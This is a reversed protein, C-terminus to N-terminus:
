VLRVSIIENIKQDGYFIVAFVKEDTRRLVCTLNWPRIYYRASTADAEHRTIGENFEDDSGQAKLSKATLTVIEAAKDYRITMKSLKRVVNCSFCHEEIDIDFKFSIPTLDTKAAQTNEPQTHEIPEKRKGAVSLGGSDQEDTPKPTDSSPLRRRGESATRPKDDLSTSPYELLESLQLIGWRQQKEHIDRRIRQKKPAERQIDIQRNKCVLWRERALQQEDDAAPWSKQEYVSEYFELCDLIMNARELAAGAQAVTVRSYFASPDEILRRRLYRSITNKTPVEAESLTDSISLAKIFLQNKRFEHPQCPLAGSPRM